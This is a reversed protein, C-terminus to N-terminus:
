NRSKGLIWGILLFCIGVVGVALWPNEKIEKEMTQKKELFQEEVDAKLQEAKPAWEKVLTRVKELETTVAETVKSGQSQVKQELKDIAEGLTHPTQGNRPM